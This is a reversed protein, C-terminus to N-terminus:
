RYLPLFHPGLSLNIELESFSDYADDTAFYRDLGGRTVEADFEHRTSDLQGEDDLSV